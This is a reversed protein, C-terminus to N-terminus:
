RYPNSCCRELCPEVRPGLELREVVLERIMAIFRPHVGVTAARAITFGLSEAHERAQRDLDVIVEMHDSIFGIPALVVHRPGPAAALSSLADKVDPELWPIHPPGSRSQYVLRHEPHGALAAVRRCAEELQQVYKSGRAMELPISHATFLLAADAPGAALAARVNEAMPEVFGPHLCFHRLKDIEPAGAGAALRAADIDDLYQRCASYSSWASTVFALARRVGADRMERVADALYPHWNRNGWYIPMRLGSRALEDRLAAILARNQDNIPSRGGVAHYNEAVEALRHRPINRGRTVNELFPMVDEPKEPGGFGAVLLADYPHVAM